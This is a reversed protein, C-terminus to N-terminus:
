KEKKKHGTENRFLAKILTLNEEVLTLIHKGKEEHTM